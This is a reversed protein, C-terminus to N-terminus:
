DLCDALFNKIEELQNQYIRCRINLDRLQDSYDILDTDKVERHFLSEVSKYIENAKSFFSIQKEIASIKQELIIKRRFFHKAKEPQRGHYFKGMENLIQKELIREARNIEKMFIIETIVISSKRKFGNKFVPRFSSFDYLLYGIKRSIVEVGMFDGAFFDEVPVSFPTEWWKYKTKTGQIVAENDKLYEVSYFDTMIGM